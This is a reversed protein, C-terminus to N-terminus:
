SGGPRFTPFILHSYQRLLAGRIREPEMTRSYSRYRQNTEESHTITSRMYEVTETAPQHDNYTVQAQQRVDRAEGSTDLRHEHPVQIKDQASHELFM